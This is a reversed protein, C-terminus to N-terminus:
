NSSKTFIKKPFASADDIGDIIFVPIKRTHKTIFLSFDTLDRLVHGPITKHRLEYEFGEGEIIALLLHLKEVNKNLTSFKNLDNIFHALLPKDQYVDREQVQAQAKIAKYSSADAKGFFINVFDELQSINDGNYYYCIITVLYIRKEIPIDIFKTKTQSYNEIFETVLVSLM